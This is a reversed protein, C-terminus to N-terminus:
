RVAGASAKTGNDWSSDLEKGAQRISIVTGHTEESSSQCVAKDERRGVANVDSNNIQPRISAICDSKLLRYDGTKGNIGTRGARLRGSRIWAYGTYISIRLFTCAEELTLVEDNM